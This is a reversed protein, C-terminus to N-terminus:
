KRMIKWWKTWECIPTPTLLRGLSDANIKPSQNSSSGGEWEILHNAEKELFILADVDLVYSISMSLFHVYLLFYHKNAYHITCLRLLVEDYLLVEDMGPFAGLLRAEEWAIVHNAEKVLFFLADVDFQCVTRTRFHVDLLFYYKNAYHITCLRLLVEDMGPFAGLLRAEEWAIVHNAEKVLFILEDVELLYSIFQRVTPALFHVYLLFYRKWSSSEIKIWSM